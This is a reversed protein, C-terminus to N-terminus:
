SSAAHSLSGPEDKMDVGLILGHGVARAMPCIVWPEAELLLHRTERKISEILSERFLAQSHGFKYLEKPSKM